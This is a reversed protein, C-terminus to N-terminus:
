KKELDSKNMELLIIDRIYEQMSLGKLACLAKLKRREAETFRIHVMSGKVRKRDKM